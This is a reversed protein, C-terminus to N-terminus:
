KKVQLKCVWVGCGNADKTYEVGNPCRASLEEVTKVPDTTSNPCVLKARTASSTQQLVVAVVVVLILAMVLFLIYHLYPHLPSLSKRSFSRKKRAM